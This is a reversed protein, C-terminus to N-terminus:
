DALLHGVPNDTKRRELLREVRKLLIKRKVNKDCYDDAGQSLLTFEDDPDSVATLMLVPLEQFASQKRLEKVFEIGGMVPMMVDCVVVDVSHAGLKELAAKGHEASTVEFGESQFVLELVQRQDNDDEVILMKRKSASSPNSPEVKQRSQKEQHLEEAAAVYAAPVQKTISFVGEFSCHGAYIKRLGDELLSRTGVRYARKTIAELPLRQRLAEQLSDDVGVISDLGVTGRYASNGCAECGRGFPYSNDADSRLVGPINEFTTPPIATSRACNGCTRKTRRHVYALRLTRTALDALEPKSSLAGLLWFLQEIPDLSRHGILVLSQTSLRVAEALSEQNQEAPDLYVADPRLALLNGVADIDGLEEARDAVLLGSRHRIAGLLLERNEPALTLTETLPLIHDREIADFRLLLDSRGKVPLTCDALIRFKSLPAFLLRRNRRENTQFLADSIEPWYRLRQQVTLVLDGTSDIEVSGLPTSEDPSSFYTVSLRSNDGEVQSVSISTAGRKQADLFIQLLTHVASPGFSNVASM